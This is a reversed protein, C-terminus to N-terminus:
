DAEKNANEPTSGLDEILADASECILRQAQHALAEAIDKQIIKELEFTICRGWTTM